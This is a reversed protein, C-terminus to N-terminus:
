YLLYHLDELSVDFKLGIKELLRKGYQHLNDIKITLLGDEFGAIKENLIFVKEPLLWQNNIFIWSNSRLLNLNNNMKNKEGKNVYSSTGGGLFREECSDGSIDKISKILVHLFLNSLRSDREKNLQNLVSKFMVEDALFIRYRVGSEILFEYFGEQNVLCEDVIIPLNM